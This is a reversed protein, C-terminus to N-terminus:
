IWCPWRLRLRTDRGEYAGTGLLFDLAEVEDRVVVIKNVHDGQKLARLTLIENDPNNEVLLAIKNNKLITNM